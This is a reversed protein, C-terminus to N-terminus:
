RQWHGYGSQTQCGAFIGVANMQLRRCLGHEIRDENVYQLIESEMKDLGPTQRFLFSIRCLVVAMYEAQLIYYMM